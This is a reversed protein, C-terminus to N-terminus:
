VRARNMMACNGKLGARARLGMGVCKGLVGVVGVVCVGAGPWGGECCVGGSCGLCIAVVTSAPQQQEV